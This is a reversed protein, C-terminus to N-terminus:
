KRKFTPLLNPRDHCAFVHVATPHQRDSVRPLRMLGIVEDGLFLNKVAEIEVVSPVRDAHVLTLTFWRLGDAEVEGTVVVTLGTAHHFGRTPIKKGNSPSPVHVESWGRPLFEPMAKHFWAEDILLRDLDKPNLRTFEDLKM